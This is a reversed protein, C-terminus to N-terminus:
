EALDSRRKIIKLVLLLVISDYIFLYLPYAVEHFVFVQIAFLSLLGSISATIWVFPTETTPNKYTKIITPIGFFLDALIACILAVIPMNLTQWLILGLVGLGFFVYDYVGTSWVGVKKIVSYGAIVLSNLANAVLIAVVWTSGEAFMARAGLLTIFTWGLWSLVHPHAKGKHIDRIYPLAGLLVFASSLIGFIAKDFM